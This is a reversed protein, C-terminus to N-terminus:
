AALSAPPQFAAGDYTWWQAPKPKTGTVDILGAVFDPHYLTAVSASKTDIVEVVTQVGDFDQLRVYIAM